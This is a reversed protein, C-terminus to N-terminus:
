RLIRSTTVSSAFRVLLILIEIHDLTAREPLIPLLSCSHMFYSVGPFNGESPVVARSSYVEGLAFLAFFKCTALSGAPRSDQYLQDLGAVTPKTLVVHFARNINILAVKLLLQAQTKSPWSVPSHLATYLNEDQTYHIRPIHPASGQFEALAQRFRTAFATCAAEGIYVPPNAVDYPVFWARDQILPNSLNEEANSSEERFQPIDTEM